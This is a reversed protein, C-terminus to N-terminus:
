REPAREAYVYYTTDDLMFTAMETLIDNDTANQEVKVTWTETRAYQLHSTVVGNGTGAELVVQRRKNNLIDRGWTLRRVGDGTPRQEQVGSPGPEAPPLDPGSEAWGQCLRGTSRRWEGGSVPRRRGSADTTLVFQRTFDPYRLVPVHILAEKIGNFKDVMDATVEGRKKPLPLASVAQAKEFNTSVGRESVTHGMFRLESQFISKEESARLGFEQLRCLLQGLHTGHEEVSRSFVIIDDMYIQIANPDLGEVFKDMLRQFTMQATKLGFPMRLYEYKGREFQFTTKEVDGRHMRIQRNATKLNLISFVKARNMRELMEELRPLPYRETRTRENLERFDVVVHYRPTGDSAAPKPVVWLPSRPKLYVPRDSDLDIHHMVRETAPLPDREVYFVGRFKEVGFHTGFRVCIGGMATVGVVTRAEFNCPTVAGLWGSARAADTHGLTHTSGTDVLVKADWGTCQIIPLVRKDRGHHTAGRKQAGDRLQRRIKDTMEAMLTERTVEKYAAIKLAAETAGWEEVARKKQNKIFIAEWTEAGSFKVLTGPTTFHADVELEKLPVRVKANNFERGKDMVLAGPLGVTGFFALLGECVGDATRETLVYANPFRTLRDITTLIKMGTWFMVDAEVDELLKAPTPTLMQPTQEPSREYKSEACPKCQAIVRAVTKAYCVLLAAEESTKGGGDSGKTKGVYYENFIQRQEETDTVTRVSGLTWAGSSSSRTRVGGRLYRLGEPERLEVDPGSEAWERTDCRSRNRIRLLIKPIGCTHNSSNFEGSWVWSDGKSLPIDGPHIRIQHYGAKLDLISFVKAGLMRNLMEELRPLPYRETRTRKNLERFDVVVRYRPTGDGAPPKPVVWLPSCFPSVSKRIVGRELMLKIEQEIVAAQAKPHRRRKVYVPRDSHLQIYHIARGTIPIPDGEVYFVKRFRVRWEGSGATVRAGLPRLADAGLIVHYTPPGWDMVHAKVTKEYKDRSQKRQDNGGDGDLKGLAADLRHAFRQPTEGSERNMRFLKLATREVPRRASAYRAKLLMNYLNQVRVEGPVASTDALQNHAAMTMFSFEELSGSRGDFVRIGKIVDVVM